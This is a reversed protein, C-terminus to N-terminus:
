KKPKKSFSQRQIWARIFISIEMKCRYSKLLEKVSITPNVALLYKEFDTKSMM